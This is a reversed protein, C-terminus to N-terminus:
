SDVRKHKPAHCQCRQHQARHAEPLAQRLAVLRCSKRANASKALHRVHWSYGRRRDNAELRVIIDADGCAIQNLIGFNFRVTPPKPQAVSNPKSMLNSKAINAPILRYVLVALDDAKSLHINWGSAMHMHMVNPGPGKVAIIRKTLIEFLQDVGSAM